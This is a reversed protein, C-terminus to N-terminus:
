NSANDAGPPKSDDDNGQAPRPTTHGSTAAARDAAQLRGFLEKIGYAVHRAWAKRERAPADSLVRKYEAASAAFNGTRGLFEALMCRATLSTAMDEGARQERDFYVRLLEVARGYEQSSEAIVVGPWVLDFLEDISLSDLELGASAWVPEWVARATAIEGQLVSDVLECSTVTLKLM